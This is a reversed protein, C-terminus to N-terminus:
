AIQITKLNMRYVCIIVITVNLDSDFDGVSAFELYIMWLGEIPITGNKENPLRPSLWGVTGLLVLSYKQNWPFNKM